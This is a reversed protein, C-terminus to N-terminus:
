VPVFLRMSESLGVEQGVGMEKERMGASELLLTVERETSPRVELLISPRNRRLFQEAGRLVRVEHGEVDMKVFNVGELGLSDLCVTRVEVSEEGARDPLNERDFSAWGDLTEGRSSRPLFLHSLGEQDSLGEARLEIRPHGCALLEKTIAPNPEFAIVRDYLRALAMAYYGRNAGIDLAIGRNPGLLSLAYWEPDYRYIGLRMLGTRASLRRELPLRDIVKWLLNRIRHQM